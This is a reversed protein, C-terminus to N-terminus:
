LYLKPQLGAVMVESANNCYKYPFVQILSNTTIRGEQM